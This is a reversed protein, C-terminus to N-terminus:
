APRRIRVRGVEVIVLAGTLEEGALTALGVLLEQNLRPTAVEDPIRVLVIGAHSGLPFRSFQAFGKDASLITQAHAQAYDFVDRDSRGRLGVDRVDEVQHGAQHLVRATSRPLDEDVLFRWIM